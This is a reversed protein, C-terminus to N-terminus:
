EELQDISYKNYFEGALCPISSSKTKCIKPESNYITKYGTLDTLVGNARCEAVIVLKKPKPKPKENPDLANLGFSITVPYKGDDSIGTAVVKKYDCFVNEKKIILTSGKTTKVKYTRNNWFAITTPNSSNQELNAYLIKSVLLFVTIAFARRFTKSNYNFGM